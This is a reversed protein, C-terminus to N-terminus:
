RATSGVETVGVDRVQLRAEAQRISRMAFTVLAIFVAFLTLLLWTVMRLLAESLETSPRLVEEYNEAVFVMLGSDRLSENGPEGFHSMVRTRGTIWQGQYADHGTYSALASLQGIPDKMVGFTPQISASEVRAEFVQDPIRTTQALANLFPHELITGLNAGPRADVLFAYQHLGNEFEVFSGMDATIAVVGLYDDGDIVPATFAVKWRDNASSPFAASIHVSRIRPRQALTDSSM